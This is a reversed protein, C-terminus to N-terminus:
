NLHQYCLNITDLSSQPLCREPAVGLEVCQYFYDIENYFGDTGDEAQINIIDENTAVQITDPQLTTYLISAHEFNAMYGAQFPFSSHFTNGGELKVKVGLKDYNWFASIYDYDSLAGPLIRSEVGDPKGLVFNVFDIDHILLDFLAGGSSGFAKQKEKWQGWGPVGSFRSMSLFRLPGYSKEDIWKKLKQYPAMFRLVHGVMFTSKHQNALAILEEGNKIDLTMPKELLVNFGRSLCIKALTYHLDTHVCIHIADLKEANLCQEIDRYKNIGALTAPDINEISFNGTKSKLKAEIGQLDKDVIAVLKLKKNKLINAAHTMGMFGFGVIAINKM